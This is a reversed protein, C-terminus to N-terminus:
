CLASLFLSFYILFVSFYEDFCFPFSFFFCGLVDVCASMLLSFFAIFVCFSRILFNVIIFQKIEISATDATNAGTSFELICRKSNSLITKKQTFCMKIYLHLTNNRLYQLISQIHTYLLTNKQDNWQQISIFM